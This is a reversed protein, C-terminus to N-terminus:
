PSFTIIFNPTIKLLPPAVTIKMELKVSKIQVWFAQDGDEGIGFNVGDSDRLKFYGQYTGGSGPATLDVSVDVYEGPDIASNTFKISDPAGMKDGSIFVLRYGSTWSCSGTNQLRWTKTFTANSFVKTGDPYTIDDVYAAQNCPIPTKTPTSTLTSTTSATPTYTLTSTNTFTLTPTETFIPPPVTDTQAPPLPTNTTLPTSTPNETNIQLSCALTSILLVFVPLVVQFKKHM